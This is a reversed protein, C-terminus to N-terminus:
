HHPTQSVTRCNAQQCIVPTHRNSNLYYYRQDSHCAELIKLQERCTRMFQVEVVQLHLHTTLKAIAVDLMSRFQGRRSYCVYLHRKSLTMMGLHIGSKQNTNFCHKKDCTVSTGGDDESQELHDGM